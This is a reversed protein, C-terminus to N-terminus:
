TVRRLRLLGGFMRNYGPIPGQREDGPDGDVRYRKGGITVQDQSSYVSPDAVTVMWTTVVTAVTGENAPEITQQQEMANYRRQVDVFRGKPNGHADEEYPVNEVWHHHVLKYPEAIM